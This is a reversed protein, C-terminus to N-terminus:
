LQYVYCIIYAHSSKYFEKTSGIQSRLSYLVYPLPHDKHVYRQSCKYLTLRTCAGSWRSARCWSPRRGWESCHSSSAEGQVRCRSFYVQAPPPQLPAQGWTFWSKAFIENQYFKSNYCYRLHEKVWSDSWVLRTKQKKRWSCSCKLSVKSTSPHFNRCKDDKTM